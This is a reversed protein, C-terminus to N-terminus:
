QWHAKIVWASERGPVAASPRDHPYHMELTPQLGAAKVADFVRQQEATLTPAENRWVGLGVTSVKMIDASGQGQRAADMALTPISKILAQLAAADAKEKTVRQEQQACQTTVQLETNLGKTARPDMLRYAEARCAALPDDVHATKGADTVRDARGRVTEPQDKSAM